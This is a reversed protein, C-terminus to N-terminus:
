RIRDNFCVLATGVIYDNPFICKTQRAMITALENLDKGVLKGNDDIVMMLGCRMNILQVTDCGTLEHLEELTYDTGNKPLVKKVKGETTVLLDKKRKSTM